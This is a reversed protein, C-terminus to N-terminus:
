YSLVYYYHPHSSHLNNPCSKALRICLNCNHPFSKRTFNLPKPLWKKPCWAKELKSSDLFDKLVAYAEWSTLTKYSVMSLNAERERTHHFVICSSIMYSINFWFHFGYWVNEIQYQGVVLVHTTLVQKQFHVSAVIKSWKQKFTKDHHSSIILQIRHSKM